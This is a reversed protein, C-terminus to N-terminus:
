RSQTQIKLRISTVQAGNRALAQLMTPVLQRLKTSAAASGLLLCWEGGEIPGAHVQKKLTDPILHQVQRLCTQSLQIREQLAALTPAAGAAQELSFMNRTRSPANM